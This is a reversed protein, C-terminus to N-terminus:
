MSPCLALLEQSPPFTELVQLLLHQQQLTLLHQLSEFQHQLSTLHQALQYRQSHLLSLVPRCGAVATVYCTHWFKRFLNRYHTDSITHCHSFGTAPWYIRNLLMSYVSSEYVSTPNRHIVMYLLFMYLLFCKVIVMKIKFQNNNILFYKYFEYICIYM